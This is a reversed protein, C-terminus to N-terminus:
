SRTATVLYRCLLGNGVAEIARARNGQREAFEELGVLHALEDSDAEWAQRWALLTEGYESTVDDIAIQEFGAAAMLDPYGLATDVEPPGAAVAGAREEM